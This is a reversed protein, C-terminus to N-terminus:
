GPFWGASVAEWEFSDVTVSDGDPSVLLINTLFVDASPDVGPEESPTVVVRVSGGSAEWIETVRPGGNEIVDDCAADAVDRGIEVQVDAFPDPLAVERMVPEGGTAALALEEKAAAIPGDLDAVLMITEEPNTAYVFLDGCGSIETFDNEFGSTLTPGYQCGAALLFLLGKKEM